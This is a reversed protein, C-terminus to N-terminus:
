HAPPTIKEVRVRVAVVPQSELRVQPDDVFVNIRFMASEIVGSLNIPDTQAVQVNQVRSAPGTVRVGEPIVEQSVIRYGKPPPGAFRVHVAVVRSERPEMAIRIQGPIARRLTVGPPLEISTENLTFTREGAQDISTLDLVVAAGTMGAGSIRGAPGQVELHVQDPVDSSIELDKPIGKFEVPVNVSATLEPDAVTLLWLLSAIALSFVKWGFNRFLFRTLIRLRRKM